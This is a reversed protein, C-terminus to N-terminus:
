QWIAGELRHAADCPLAAWAGDWRAMALASVAADFANDDGAALAHLDPDLDSLRALYAKRAARSTKSVRGTLLRPYIEVVLPFAPEDFPWVRFGHERLRHLVPMGRLSGTGVHGAGVLQFVSKPRIGAVSEAELETRRWQWDDPAGEPASRQLRWFPPPPERLWTESERSMLEWLESAHEIGLSRLFWAPLSFAFDLGVVLEPDAAAEDILCRGVEARSRGSELRLLRGGAAEALWIARREARVAGSWDVAIVRPVRRLTRPFGVAGARTRVNM